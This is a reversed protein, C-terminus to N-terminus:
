NRKRKRNTHKINSNVNRNLPESHTFQPLPFNYTKLNSQANARACRTTGQFRTADVDLRLRVTDSDGLRNNEEEKLRCIAHRRSSLKGHRPRPLLRLERDTRTSNTTQDGWRTSHTHWLPANSPRACVFSSPFFFFSFFPLCFFPPRAREREREADPM